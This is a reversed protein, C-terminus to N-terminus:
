LWSIKLWLPKQVSVEKTQVYVNASQALMIKASMNISAFLKIKSVLVAMAYNAFKLVKQFM